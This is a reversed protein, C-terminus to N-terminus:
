FKDAPLTRDSERYLSYVGPLMCYLVVMDVTWLIRVETSYSYDLSQALRLLFGGLCCWLGRRESSIARLSVTM